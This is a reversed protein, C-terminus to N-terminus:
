DSATSALVDALSRTENYFRSRLTICAEATTGDDFNFSYLGADQLMNCGIIIERQDISGKPSKELFHSFYDVITEHDTRPMDSLISLLMADRSYLIAVQEPDKTQM